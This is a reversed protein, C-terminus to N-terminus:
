RAELIAVAAANAAVVLRFPGAATTGEVTVTLTRAVPNFEVDVDADDVREEARACREIKARLRYAEAEDMAASLYARLDISDYAADYFLSGEPTSLRHAVAQAVAATDTVERLDVDLDGGFALIDIGLEIDAM